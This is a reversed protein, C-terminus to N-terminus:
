FLEPHTCGAASSDAWSKACSKMRGTCSLSSGSFVSGNEKQKKQSRRRYQRHIIEYCNFLGICLCFFLCLYLILLNNQQLIQM